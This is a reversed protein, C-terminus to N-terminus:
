GSFFSTDDRKKKGGGKKQAFNCGDPEVSDSAVFGAENREKETHATQTTVYISLGQAGKEKRKRRATSSTFIPVAL